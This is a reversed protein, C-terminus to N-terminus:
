EAKSHVVEILTNTIQEMAKASPSEPAYTTVPQYAAVSEEVAQDVPIEGLLRLNDVGVYTRLLKQLQLLHIKKRKQGARNFVLLPNFSKVAAVSAQKKDEGAAEALAFIENVNQINTKAIAKRIEDRALFVSLAKRIVGLKVFRYLDLVSTPEATTICINYDAMMFYDLTNINTGAGVDIIVFDADLKEIHRILKQRSGTPLNATYMSEGMGPILKLNSFEKLELTVDQLSNVRRLMFDGLTHEPRFHGFMIHCNAGGSDLDVLVVKFGKAALTVAINASLVSKGVGGKGSGISVLTTM